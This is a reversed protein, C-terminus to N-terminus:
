MMRQEKYHHVFVPIPVGETAGEYNKACWAFYRDGYAGGTGNAGVGVQFGDANFAQIQDDDSLADKLQATNAVASTRERYGVFDSEGKGLIGDPRFSTLSLDRDDTGDGTWTVFTLYNAVEGLVMYRYTKGNENVNGGSGIQAYGSNVSQILNSYTNTYRWYITDDGTFDNSRWAQGGGATAGGDELTSVLDPTWAGYTIADNRNDSGDGTYTGTEMDQTTGDYQFCLYLYVQGNTNLEGDVTFQGTGLNTIQGSVVTRNWMRLADGASFQDSTFYAEIAGYPVVYLGSAVTGLAGICNTLSIVKGGGAGDGTYSGTDIRM